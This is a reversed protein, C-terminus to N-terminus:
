RPRINRVDHYGGPSLSQFKDTRSVTKVGSYQFFQTRQRKGSTEERLIADTDNELALHLIDVIGM